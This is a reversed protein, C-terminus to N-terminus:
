KQPPTQTNDYLAEDIVNGQLTSYEPLCTVRVGWRQQARSAETRLLVAHEQKNGTRQARQRRFVLQRNVLKGL